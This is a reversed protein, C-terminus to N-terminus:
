NRSRFAEVDDTLEPVVDRIDRAGDRGVSDDDGTGLVATESGMSSTGPELFATESRRYSARRYPFRTGRYLNSTGRGISSMWSDSFSTGSMLCETESRPYKTGSRLFERERALPRCFHVDPRRGPVVFRRGQAWSSVQRTSTGVKQRVFRMKRARPPRGGNPSRGGQELLRRM